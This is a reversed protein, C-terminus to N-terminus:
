RASVAIMKVLREFDQLKRLSEDDIQGSDAVKRMSMAIEQIAVMMDAANLVQACASSMFGSRSMYMADAQKDIRQLLEDNISINIKM